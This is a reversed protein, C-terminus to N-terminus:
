PLAFGTQHPHHRQALTTSDLVEGLSLPKHRMNADLPTASVWFNRHDKARLSRLACDTRHTVVVKVIHHM